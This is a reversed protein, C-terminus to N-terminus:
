DGGGGRRVEIQPDMDKVKHGKFGYKYFGEETDDPVACTLKNKGPSMDAQPTCARKWAKGKDGKPKPETVKFFRKAAGAKDCGNEVDWQLEGGPGVVVPDPQVSTVQCNPKDDGESVPGLVVQVVKPAPKDQGRGAVAGFVGVVVAVGVVWRSDV